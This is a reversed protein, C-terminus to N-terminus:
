SREVLDVFDRENREALRVYLLGGAVVTPYVLVGLALLASTWPNNRTWELM